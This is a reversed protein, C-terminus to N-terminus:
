YVFRIKSRTRSWTFGSVGVKFFDKLNEFKHKKGIEYLHTQIDEATSVSSIDNELVNIIDFFINKNSNDIKVYKKNPLIFDYYYNLAYDILRDFEQNNKPNLDKDYKNIFSWIVKKDNSNSISVLNTLTNFNNRVQIKKSKRLSYAM